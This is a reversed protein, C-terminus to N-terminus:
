ELWDLPNFGRQRRESREARKRTGLQRGPLLLELLVLIIVAGFTADIVRDLPDWGTIRIGLLGHILFAGVFSGAIGLFVNVLCGLREVRLLVSAIYGAILGVVIWGMLQLFTEVTM